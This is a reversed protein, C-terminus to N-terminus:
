KEKRSKHAGGFNKSKTFWTNKQKHWATQPNEPREEEPGHIECEEASKAMITMM